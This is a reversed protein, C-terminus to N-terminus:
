PCPGNWPANAGLDFGAMPIQAIGIDFTLLIRNYGLAVSEALKAGHSQLDLKTAYVQELCVELPSDDFKIVAHPVATSKGVQRLYAPTGKNLPKTFEIEKFAAPNAPGGGSTLPQPHAVSWGFSLIPSGEVEDTGPYSIKGIPAAMAGAPLALACAFALLAPVWLPCRRNKTM